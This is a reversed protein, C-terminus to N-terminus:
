KSPSGTTSAAGITGLDTQGDEGTDQPPAADASPRPRVPEYKLCKTAQRLEPHRVAAQFTRCPLGRAGPLHSIHRRGYGEGGGHDEGQLARVGTGGEGM